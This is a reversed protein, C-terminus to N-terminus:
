VEHPIDHQTFNQKHEPQAGEDSYASSQDRGRISGGTPPAMPAMMGEMAAVKASRPKSMPMEVAVVEAVPREHMPRMEYVAGEAPMEDM